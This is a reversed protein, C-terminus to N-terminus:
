FLNLPFFLMVNLSIVEELKNENDAKQSDNRQPESGIDIDDTSQRLLQKQPEMMDPELDSIDFHPTNFNRANELAERDFWSVSVKPDQLNEIIGTEDRFFSKKLLIIKTKIYYGKIRFCIAM